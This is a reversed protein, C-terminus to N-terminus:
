NVRLHSSSQGLRNGQSDVVFLRYDGPTSPASLSTADGSAQTMTPGAAFQTASAPAFWVTNSAAGSSRIPLTAGPAVSASAPFVYDAAALLGAPLLQRYNDQLGASVCTSYQPLPWVNDPV